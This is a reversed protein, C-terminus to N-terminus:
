AENAATGSNASVTTWKGNVLKQLAVELGRPIIRTKTGPQKKRLNYAIDSLRKVDPLQFSPYDNILSIKKVEEDRGMEKFKAFLERKEDQNTFQVRVLTNESEKPKLSGLRHYDELSPTFEIYQFMRDLAEKTEARSEFKGTATSKLGKILLCKRKQEVEFRQFGEKAKSLQAIEKKLCDIEDKMRELATMKEDLKELKDMVDKLSYERSDQGRTMKSPPSSKENGSRNRKKDGGM